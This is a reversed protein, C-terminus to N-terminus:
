FTGAQVQGKFYFNYKLQNVQFYLISVGQMFRIWAKGLNLYLLPDLWVPVPLLISKQLPIREVTVLQFSAKAEQLM